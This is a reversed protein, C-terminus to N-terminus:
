RGKAFDFYDSGGGVSGLAATPIDTGLGSDSLDAPVGVGSESPAGFVVMDGANGAGAAIDHGLGQSGGDDGEDEGDAEEISETGVTGTTTGYSDRRETGMGSTTGFSSRGGGETSAGYSTNGYSTRRETGTDSPADDEENSDEEDFIDNEKNNAEFGSRGAWSSKRMYNTKVSHSRKLNSLGKDVPATILTQNRSPANGSIQNLSLIRRGSTTTSAPKLKAPPRKQLAMGIGSSAASPAVTGTTITSAQSSVRKLSMDSAAKSSRSTLVSRSHDLVGELIRRELGEARSEMLQLEERRIQLATELSAVDASLRLKQSSLDEKEARMAEVAKHLDEKEGTLAVTEAEVREKQALRKELAIAAEEAQKEKDEHNQTILKAQSAVFDSVETATTMVRQHIQDLLDLQAISKDAATSHSLLKDLKTHVGADDYKETVPVSHSILKDLKVHVETDSYPEPADHIMAAPPTTAAMSAERSRMEEAQKQFHEYHRGVLLLVEKISDLIKPQYETAQSQLGGVATFTKLVEERTRQHESRADAHAEEVKLFTEDVRNFVTKSDDGMKDCSETLTAGLTDILLKLDEAVAKTGLLVEDKQNNKAEATRATEEASLRADDYKVMLEDFREDIKQRLDVTLAARTEDVRELVASAKEDSDLRLGENEGHAREFERNVVELVEKIDATAHSSAGITEGLVAISEMLSGIGHGGDDIKAKLEEKVEELYTKVDGIKETVHEHEIKREEHAKTSHTNEEDVKVKLEALLNGLTEVDTKTPLSEPDPLIMQEIHSKLDACLLEIADLDTKTVKESDDEPAARARIEELGAQIDRLISEMFKIDDKTTGDAFIRGALDNITDRNERVVEEVAELHDKRVASEPDPFSMEEIKAKTNQLLTEIADTDEKRAAHDHAHIDRGAIVTVSAQLASLLEEIVILDDKLLTGEAPQSSQPPPPTPQPMSELAEVKIRLQTILVELNEIDNRQLSEAVVVEGGRSTLELEDVKAARLRDIDERVSTLGEKLTDLIEYSITMDMPKNVMKEVDLRLSDLGDNLADLLEGTNSIISEPRDNMREVDARVADLGEKLAELIDEKDATAGGHVISTALSERLHEFEEKMMNLMDNNSRINDDQSMNVQIDTVAERISEIIDDKDGSAGGRVISSAMIERLHEFEGRLENLMETNFKASEDRALDTRIGDLGLTMADLLEEKDSSDGKRVITTAIVERLHEFEDKMVDLLESNSTSNEDRPSNQIFEEFDVKLHQLGDRVTDIIEDKGTVDAARDVYTEIDARLSELGDKVADLVQETDRGNAASYQKFESRMGEVVERLKELVEEGLGGLPTPAGELGVRVADFLDDRNIELERASGQANTPFDFTGLGEKVADLVVDRTADVDRSVATAVPFEFGELCERVSMLIEEKTISAETEVPAPPTFHQLGDRVAEYVDDRRIGGVVRNHPRHEELGERLCQLIEDRELGFSQMEIEPKYTEWAERVADLIEEKELGPNPAQIAVQQSQPMESLAHKVADYVEQADVTSRSISSASSERRKERIVRDMHEKLEFLGNQVIRALDEKESGVSKSRDQARSLEAQELQRGLERGMGLVEGRLERVLAKVEATLGGGEATSDKLKRLLKLIEDGVFDAARPSSFSKGPKGSSNHGLVPQQPSVDRSVRALAGSASDEFDLVLRPPGDETGRNAPKTIASSENSGSRLVKHLQELKSATEIGDKNMKELLESVSSLLRDQGEKTGMERLVKELLAISAAGDMAYPMPSNSLEREMTAAFSNPSPIRPLAFQKRSPPSAHPKDDLFLARPRDNLNTTSRASSDPASRLLGASLNSVLERLSTRIDEDRANTAEKLSILDTANDKSRRSLQAMDRQLSTAISTLSLIQTSIADFTQPTRVLASSNTINSLATDLNAPTSMNQLAKMTASQPPSNEGLISRPPQRASPRLVPTARGSDIDYPSPSGTRTPSREPSKGGFDREYNGGLTQAILRKEPSREVSREPSRGADLHSSLDRVSGNGTQLSQMRKHHHGKILSREPSTQPKNPMPNTTYGGANERAKETLAAAAAAVTASTNPRTTVSPSGPNLPLPPPARDPDASDWMPLRGSDSLSPQHKLVLERDRPEERDVSAM